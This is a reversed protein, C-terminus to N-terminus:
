ILCTLCLRPGRVVNAFDTGWHGYPVSLRRHPTIPSQMRAANPAVLDVVAAAAYREPRPDRLLARSMTADSTPHPHLYHLKLRHTAALHATAANSGEHQLGAVAGVSMM